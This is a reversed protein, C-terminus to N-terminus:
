HLCRKQAFTAVIRYGCFVALKPHKGLAYQQTYTNSLEKISRTHKYRGIINDSYGM